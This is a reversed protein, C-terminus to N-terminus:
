TLTSIVTVPFAGSAQVAEADALIGAGGSPDHGGVCLVVPRDNIRSM